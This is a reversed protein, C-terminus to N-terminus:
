KEEHLFKALHAINYPDVVVNVGDRVAVKYLSTNTHPFTDMQAPDLGTLWALLIRMARGHMCILVQREDPKSLIHEMALKQRAILQMPSEGQDVAVHLAGNKWQSVLAEFGTVIDPTQAKGEYIGWSIEDLGELREYPVGDQVFHEVTQYTRQLRSIYIRDFGEERYAEYFARAQERGTDNLPADIGRGQVIGERNLDTQGHRIIYLLKDM